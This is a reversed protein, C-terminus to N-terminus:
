DAHQSKTRVAPSVNRTLKEVADSIAFLYQELLPSKEIYLSAGHLYSTMQDADAPSSSTVVIPVNALHPTQKIRKLVEFGDARPLNVDLLIIDPVFRNDHNQPSCCFNDIADRGDKFRHLNFDLSAQELALRILEVDDPNDEIAVVEIAPM